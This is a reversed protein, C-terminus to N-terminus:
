IHGVFDLMQFLYSNQTSGDPSDMERLKTLTRIVNVERMARFYKYLHNGTLQWKLGYDIIETDNESLSTMYTDIARVPSSEVALLLKTNDDFDLNCDSDNQEFWDVNLHSTQLVM